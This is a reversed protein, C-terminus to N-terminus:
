KELPTNRKDRMEVPVGEVLVRDEIMDKTTEFYKIFHLTNRHAQYAEESAYIEFFMIKAPDSRDAVAYIALVGPEFRLADRMEERIAATFANLQDPKIKLHAIRVTGAQVANAQAAGATNLGMLLLGAFVFLLLARTNM